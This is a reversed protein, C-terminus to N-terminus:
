VYGIANSISIKGFYSLPLNFDLWDFTMRVDNKGFPNDKKETSHISGGLGGNGFAYWAVDKEAARNPNEFSLHLQANKIIAIQCL